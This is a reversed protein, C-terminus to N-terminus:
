CSCIRTLINKATPNKITATDFALRTGAQINSKAKVRLEREEAKIGSGPLLELYGTMDVAANVLAAIGPPAFPTDGSNREQVKIKMKERIVSFFVNMPLDVLLM